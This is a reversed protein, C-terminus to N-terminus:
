HRVGRRGPRSVNTTPTWSPPDSAPFSEESSEDVRDRDPVPRAPHAEREGFLSGVSALLRRLPDLVNVM